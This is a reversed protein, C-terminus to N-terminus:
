AAMLAARALETATQRTPTKNFSQRAADDKAPKTPKTTASTGAPAKPPPAKTAAPTPKGTIPFAKALATELAAGADSNVAAKALHEMVKVGLVFTGLAVRHDPTRARLEPMLTMAQQARAYEPSAKDDLWPFVAKVLPENRAEAAKFTQVQQRQTPLERTLWANTERVRRKLGNVDLRESQMYREVRAREDETASDDLFNEAEALFKEATGALQALSKEDLIAAPAATAPRNPDNRLAEAEAAVRQLEAEAKDARLKEADRAGTLKGIRKDVLAQLPKPLPGGAEEWAALAAQADAPLPAETAKEGNQEDESSKAAAEATPAETTEVIEEGAPAVHSEAAPPIETGPTTETEEKEPIAGAGAFESKLLDAMGSATLTVETKAATSEGPKGAAGSEKIETTNM